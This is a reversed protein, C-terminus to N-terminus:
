EPDDEDGDRRVFWLHEFAFTAGTAVKMRPLTLKRIVVSVRIERVQADDAPVGGAVKVTTIVPYNELGTAGITRGARCVDGASPPKRLAEAGTRAAPGCVRHDRFDDPSEAVNEQLQRHWGNTTPDGAGVVVDVSPRGTRRLTH